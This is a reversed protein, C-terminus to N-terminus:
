APAIVFLLDGANIQAGSTQNLSVIRYSQDPYLMKDGNISALSVHTFFKMAEIQCITDNLHFQNGVTVYDSDNPSPASYFMGTMPSLVKLENTEPIQISSAVETENDVLGSNSMEKILSTIDTTALFKPLYSTDYNGSNFTPDALIRKLLPINTCIGTISIQDLAKLLRAIVEKRDKGYCIVQAIMSDYFPTITKGTAAISIVELYDYQPFYSQAIYGPSPIFDVRGKDNIQASEANIRVEIAFGKGKTRLRLSKISEREAIRFQQSVISVGTVWETVPHEVQLRTNMEMFYINDTKRDLDLIFEVTGAGIYDIKDALKEAYRYAKRELEASLLPSGSEELIKQNNRQVSCDRLGLIKTNGHADRLVQVEIHRMSVIYKEMYLDSNGFAAKAEVQVKNFAAKIDELSEVVEIGKGGGGHVAKLLVPFGIETAVRKSAEVSTLIGHSGPVVPVGAEEATHIANSKNGMAQMCSAYPGIFNLQYDHRCQHAFEENESLFGIGPHLADARYRQAINFVSQANLYSEDSTQGGLCVLTDKSTIMDAPVSDMDPDSAVLLVEKDLQQAIRILKVATCGRAHILVRKIPKMLESNSSKAPGAEKIHPLYRGELVREIVEEVTENPTTIRSDVDLLRQDLDEFFPNKVLGRMSGGVNALYNSVTAHAPLFSPVVIRGAFPMDTGSFYYTQVLPHTVFSAQSGGVCNGFGFIILPLDNDRVFRTIRDNIVAMSFLSRPGEKTQMGGSSIFCILPLGELACTVLLNCLKEASAMDFAGVQFETNSIAVGVKHKSGFKLTGVGTIIGCPAVKSQLAKEISLRFGPFNIPNATMLNSDMENFSSFFQDIFAAPSCKHEQQCHNLVNQILIGKYAIDLQNWFDKRKGIHVPNIRGDFERDNDQKHLYNTLLNEFFFTIFVLLADSLRPYYIRKWEEVSKLFTGRSKHKGFNDLWTTFQKAQTKSRGASEPKIAKNLLQKTTKESLIHTDGTEKAIDAFGDIISNYLSDFTAMNHCAEQMGEKLEDILVIDVLTISSDPRDFVEQNDAKSNAILKQLTKFNDRAESKWRNYLFLGLAFCLRYKVEDYNKQPEGLFISSIKGRELKLESRRLKFRQWHHLLGENYVLRDPNEKWRQFNNKRIDDLRQKFDGKPIEEEALRGYSGIKTSSIRQRLTIFRLHNCAYGFINPHRSNITNIAVSSVEQLNKLAQPPKILRKVNREYHQFIHDSKQVFNSTAKEIALVSNTICQVLTNVSNGQDDPSWDIIGDIVKDRLLEYPSIGVYRASEQWSLNYKRAINAMGKPQITNFVSDRVALLLNTAALPIAGGSYGLGYIIGVTPVHIDCMEATLHSISHAQNDLNAESGADAGPTDIFTVIPISLNCFERVIDKALRHHRPMWIGSNVKRNQALIGLRRPESGFLLEIEVAYLPGEDISQIITGKFRKIISQASPRKLSEVPELIAAIYEDVQSQDLQYLKKRVTDAPLFGEQPLVIKFQKDLNFFDLNTSQAEKEIFYLDPENPSNYLKTKVM